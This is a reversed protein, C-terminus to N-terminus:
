HIKCALDDVLFIIVNPRKEEANAIACVTVLGILFLKFTTNM